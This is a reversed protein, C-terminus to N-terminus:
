IVTGMAPATSGSIEWNATIIATGGSFSQPLGLLVYEGEWEPDGTTPAAGASGWRLTLTGASGGVKANLVDFARDAANNLHFQASIPASWFNALFNHFGESVGMLDVSEYERGFSVSGAILDASLDRQTPVEDDFLIRFGREVKDKAM